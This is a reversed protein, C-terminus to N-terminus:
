MDGVGPRKRRWSRAWLATLTSLFSLPPRRSVYVYIWMRMNMMTMACEYLLECRGREPGALYGFLHFFGSFTQM